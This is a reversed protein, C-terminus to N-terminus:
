RFGKLHSGAKIHTYPILALLTPNSSTSYGPYYFHYTHFVLFHYRYKKDTHLFMILPYILHSIYNVFYPDANDFVRCESKSLNIQLPLCGEWIQQKITQSAAAM